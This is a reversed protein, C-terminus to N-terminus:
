DRLDGSSDFSSACGNLSRKLITQLSRCNPAVTLIGTLLRVEGEVKASDRAVPVSRPCEDTGRGPISGPGAGESLAMIETEGGPCDVLEPLQLRVLVYLNLAQQGVTLRGRFLDRLLWPPLRVRM